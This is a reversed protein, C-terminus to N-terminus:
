RAARLLQLAIAFLGVAALATKTKEFWGQHPLDAWAATNPQNTGAVPKSESTPAPWDFARSSAAPQEATAVSSSSEVTEAPSISRMTVAPAEEITPKTALEAEVLTQGTKGSGIDPALSALFSGVRGGFSGLTTGQGAGFLVGALECRSNFIPGGSDGQRAQVDLEVMQQPLHLKPAYYGTCRGTAARYDGQGYGCITLQDGPQPATPAIAVPEVPPRWIVLAALDWDPDVKLARAQSKFGDPFSVEIAGQADRVVHWNTIVLGYQQRVDVLTGSGYSIAGAEPVTIRVVAPHPQNSRLPTAPPSPALEGSDFEAQWVETLHSKFSDAAVTGAWLPLAVLALAARMNRPAAFVFM